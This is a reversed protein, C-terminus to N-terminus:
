DSSFFPRLKCLLFHWAFHRWVTEQPVGTYMAVHEQIKPSFPLISAGSWVELSKEKYLSLRPIFSAWVWMCTMDKWQAKNWERRELHHGKIKVGRLMSFAIFSRSSLRPGGMVHSNDKRFLHRLSTIGGNNRWAEDQPASVATLYKMLLPYSGLMLHIICILTHM